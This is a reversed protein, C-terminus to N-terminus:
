DLRGILAKFREVADLGDRHSSISVVHYKECRCECTTNSVGASKDYRRGLPLAGVCGGPCMWGPVDVHM